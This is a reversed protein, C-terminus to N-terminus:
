FAFRAYAIVGSFGFRAALEGGRDGETTVRYNTNSFGAGAGFNRTFYYVISTDIENVNGDYGAINAAFFNGQAEWFLRKALTMEFHLGIVPIPLITSETETLVESGTGGGSVTGVGSLKINSWIASIGGNLGFLVKGNNFFSYKYIVNVMDASLDSSLTIGVDYIVDGWEIQRELTKSNQRSWGLYSVDLRHRNSFRYFASFNFNTQSKPMGLDGEFDIETGAVGSSGDLRIRTDFTQWFSGLDFGWSDPVGRVAEREAESVVSQALAPSTTAAALLVLVLVPSRM